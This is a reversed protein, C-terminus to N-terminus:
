TDSVTRGLKQTFQPPTNKLIYVMLHGAESSVRGDTCTVTIDYGVTSDYDFDFSTSSV